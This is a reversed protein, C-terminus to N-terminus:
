SSVERLETPLIVNKAGNTQKESSVFDVIQEWVYHENLSMQLNGILNKIEQVGQEKTLVIKGNNLSLTDM